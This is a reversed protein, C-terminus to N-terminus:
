SFLNTSGQIFFDIWKDNNNSCPQKCCAYIDKFDVDELYMGKLTEAGMSQLQIEQVILARRSLADAVKNSQGKKHKINFTFGQLYEM